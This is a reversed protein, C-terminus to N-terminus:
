HMSVPFQNLEYEKSNIKLNSYTTAQTELEIIDDSNFGKLLSRSRSAPSNRETLDSASAAIAEWGRLVQSAWTPNINAVAQKMIAKILDGASFDAEAFGSSAMSTDRWSVAEASLTPALPNFLGDTDGTEEGV